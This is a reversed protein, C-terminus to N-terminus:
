EITLAVKPLYRIKNLYECVKKDDEIPYVYGLADAIKVGIVGILKCSEFISDWIEEYDYGAYTKKLTDWLETSLYTKFWKGFKGPNTNWNNDVGIYWSVMKIICERVYVDNMYKAYCLEDRWIGKATNTSCWWFENVVKDYEEKSPKKTIYYSDNPKEFECVINDKDLLLIKLSDEYLIDINEIPFFTLDIRIGDHFIMLFIYWEVSDKNCDNQQMIILEGFKKIWSQNKLFYEPETVVFVVDYDCFIDKPANPNVRSGNLIVARVMDNNKAFDLLEGIVEKENRM